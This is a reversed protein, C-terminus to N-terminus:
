KGNSAEMGLFSSPDVFICVIYGIFIAIAFCLLVFLFIEQSKTYIKM